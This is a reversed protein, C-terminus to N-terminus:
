TPSSFNVEAQIDPPLAALFEPDIEEATSPAPIPAPDSVPAPVSQAQQSALLQARLHAPLAELFTPDIGNANSATNAAGTEDSQGAQVDQAISTNQESLPESPNSALDDTAPLEQQENVSENGEGIEMSDLANNGVDTTPGHSQGGSHEANEVSQNLEQNITNPDSQQTHIM